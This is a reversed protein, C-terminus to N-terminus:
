SDPLRAVRLPQPRLGSARRESVKCWGQDGVKIEQMFRIIQSVSVQARGESHGAFTQQYLQILKPKAISPDISGLEPWGVAVINRQIFDEAYISEKGARVFWIDAM